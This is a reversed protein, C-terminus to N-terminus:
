TMWWVAMLLAVAATRTVEPHGPNLDFFVLLLISLVPGAILAIKKLKM